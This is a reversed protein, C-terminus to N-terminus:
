FPVPGLELTKPAPAVVPTLVPKGISTTKKPDVKPLDKPMDKPAPGTAPPAVAPAPAVTAPPIVTSGCGSTATGCGGECSPAIDAKGCPNCLKAKIKGLLMGPKWCVKPACPDCVPEPAHWKECKPLEIVIPKCHKVPAECVPAPACAPAKDCPNCLKAKLKSLLGIKHGCPDCVGCDSVTATGCNSGCAATGPAAVVVPAAPAAAPVPDAGALCALM